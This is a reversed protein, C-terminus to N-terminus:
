KINQHETFNPPLAAMGYERRVVHIRNEQPAREVLTSSALDTVHTDGSKLRVRAHVIFFRTGVGAMAATGAEPAVMGPFAAVVANLDRWPARQRLEEFRALGADDIGPLLAALLAKDATNINVPTAQPLIVTLAELRRAHPALEPIATLLQAHTLAAQRHPATDRESGATIGAVRYHAAIRQALDDPLGAQAAVRLWLLREATSPSPAALNMLNYRAQADSIHGSLWVDDVRSDTAANGAQTAKLFDSLRGERLPIAWPEGLHDNASQRADERLILLAWDEAGQLIRRVQATERLQWEIGALASQKSLMVSLTAAVLVAILLAVLLAAGRQHMISPQGRMM